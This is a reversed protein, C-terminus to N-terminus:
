DDEGFISPAGQFLQNFIPFLASGSIQRVFSGASQLVKKSTSDDVFVIDGPLLQGWEANGGLLHKDSLNIEKKFVQGASNARLVYVSKQKAVDSFGGAQAIAKLINDRSGITYSGPHQVAGVVNVDFVSQGMNSNHITEWAADAVVMEPPIENIVVIDQDRLPLDQITNGNNLLDWLDVHITQPKPDKRIVKIDRINANYKLGGALILADTLYLRYFSIQLDAGGLGSREALEPSLAKGSIFIGPNEVAGKVYVRVPRQFTVQLNISPHVFYKGYLENLYNNAEQVSMGLLTVRGVLPLNLSGDAMLKGHLVLSGMVADEVSVVDGAGLLYDSHVVMGTLQPLQRNPTEEVDASASGASVLLGALIITLLRIVRNAGMGTEARYEMVTGVQIWKVM